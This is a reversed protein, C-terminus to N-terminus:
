LPHGRRPRAGSDLRGRQGPLVQLTRPVRMCVCGHARWSLLALAVDNGTSKAICGAAAGGHQPCLFVDKRRQRVQRAHGRGGHGQLHVPLAGALGCEARGPPEQPFTHTPARAHRRVCRYLVTARVRVRTHVCVRVCVCLVCVCLVRVCCRRQSTSCCSTQRRWCCGRWRWAGGSAALCRRLWRTAPRAGAAHHPADHRHTGTRIRRRGTRACGPTTCASPADCVRRLADM